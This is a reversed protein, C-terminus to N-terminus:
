PRKSARSAIRADYAPTMGFFDHGPCDVAKAAGETCLTIVAKVAAPSIGAFRNEALVTVPKDTKMVEM